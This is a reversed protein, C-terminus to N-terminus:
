ENQACCNIDSCLDLNPAWTLIRTDAYTNISVGAGFWTLFLTLVRGWAGRLDKGM